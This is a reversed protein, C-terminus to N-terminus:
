FSDPCSAITFLGCLLEVFRVVLFRPRLNNNCFHGLLLVVLEGDRLVLRRDLDIDPSCM